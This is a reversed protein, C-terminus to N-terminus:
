LAEFGHPPNVGLARLGAIAAGRWKQGYAIICDDRRDGDFHVRTGNGDVEFGIDNAIEDGCGACRGPESSAGHLRHWDLIMEGFALREARQWPRQGDLSWHAIRAAFRDRWSAISPPTAPDRMQECRALAVLVEAKVNALQRVVPAASKPGRVILTGGEAKITLGAEHATRILALVEM